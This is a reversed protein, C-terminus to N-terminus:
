RRGCESEDAGWNTASRMVPCRTQAGRESGTERAMVRDAESVIDRRPWGEAKHM